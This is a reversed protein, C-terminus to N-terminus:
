ARPGIPNVHGVYEESQPHVEPDGYVESTSAQLIKADTCKALDLVNGAGYVNTKITQVPDAQYHPPSAPCALNYIEDISNYIKAISPYISSYTIDQQIFKFNNYNLLSTINYQSGTQYNDICIVNCGCNLMYSCLHSGLFGAGGTILVTNM